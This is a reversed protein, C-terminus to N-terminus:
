QGRSHDKFGFANNNSKGSANFLYVLRYISSPYIISTAQVIEGAIIRTNMATGDNFEM